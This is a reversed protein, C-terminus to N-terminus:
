KGSKRLHPTFRVVSRSQEIEIAPAASIITMELRYSRGGSRLAAGELRAPKELARKGVLKM